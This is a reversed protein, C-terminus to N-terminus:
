HRAPSPCPAMSGRRQACMFAVLCVYTFPLQSNMMTFMRTGADRMERCMSQMSMYMAMKQAKAKAQGAADGAAPAPGVELVLRGEVFADAIINSVWGYLTRWKQSGHQEEITLSRWEEETVLEANFYSRFDDRAEGAERKEERKNLEEETMIGKVEAMEPIKGHVIAATSTLARQVDAVADLAEQGVKKMVGVPNVFIDGFGFAPKDQPASAFSAACPSLLGARRITGRALCARLRPLPSPSNENRSVELKLFHRLIPIRRLIRRLLRGQSVCM